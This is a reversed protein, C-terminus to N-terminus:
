STSRATFDPLPKIDACCTSSLTRLLAGRIPLAVTYRFRSTKVRRASIPATSPSSPTRRNTPCACWSAVNRHRRHPFIRDRSLRVMRPKTCRFIGPRCTTKKEFNDACPNHADQARANPDRHRDAGSVCACDSVCRMVRLGHLITWPAPHRHLADATRRVGHAFM